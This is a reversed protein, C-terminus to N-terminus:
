LVRSFETISIYKVSSCQGIALLLDSEYGDVTVFIITWETPCGLATFLGFFCLGAIESV